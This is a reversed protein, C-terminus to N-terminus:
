KIWQRCAQRVKDPVQPTTWAAKVRTKKFVLLRTQSEQSGLSQLGGLEKIWPIEWSLISSHTTM